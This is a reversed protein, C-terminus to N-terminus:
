RATTRPTGSLTELLDMLEEECEDRDELDDTEDDLAAELQAVRAVIRQRENETLAPEPTWRICSGECQPHWCYGEEDHGTLLHKCWHCLEDIM